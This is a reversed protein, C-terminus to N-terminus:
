SSLYNRLASVASKAFPLFGKSSTNSVNYLTVFVDGTSFTVHNVVRDSTGSNLSYAQIVKPWCETYLLQCLTRKDASLLYVPIDRKYDSPRGYGGGGSYRSKSDFPKLVAGQWATLYNLAENSSDAYIALQLDDIDYNGALHQQRGQFFRSVPQFTRMPVTAEEVFYWPLGVPQGDIASIIPLDCYWNFSLQPDSRAMAGELSNTPSIGGPNTLKSGSSLGFTSGLTGLIDQPAKLLKEVGGSFDGKLISSVAGKVAGIGQGAARSVGQSIERQATSAIGPIIGKVEKKASSLQANISGSIDKRSASVDNKIKSKASAIIDSLNPM